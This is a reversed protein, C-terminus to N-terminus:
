EKSIQKSLDQVINTLKNFLESSNSQLTSLDKINSPINEFYIYLLNVSEQYTDIAGVSYNEHLNVSAEIFNKLAERKAADYMDLKKLSLQHKNNIKATAIPSIVASLGVGIAIVWSFWEM